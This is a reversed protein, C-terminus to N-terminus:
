RQVAVVVVEPDIRGIRLAHDLAVVAAGVDGEVAALGPAGDVVLHGALEVVNVDVVLQGVADVACLLVVAADAYGAGRFLAGDGPGIAVRRTCAFAAVDGDM